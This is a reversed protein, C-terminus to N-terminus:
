GEVTAYESISLNNLVAEKFAYHPASNRYSGCASRTKCKPKGMAFISFLSHNVLMKKIHFHLAWTGEASGGGIPLLFRGIPGDVTGAPGM